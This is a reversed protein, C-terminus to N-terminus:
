LDSTLIYNNEPIYSGIINGIVNTKINIKDLINKISSNEYACLMHYYGDIPNNINTNNNALPGYQLHLLKMPENTSKLILDKVGKLSIFYYDGIISKINDIVICMDYYDLTYIYLKRQKYFIGMFRNIKPSFENEMSLFYWKKYAVYPIFNYMLLKNTLNNGRYYKQIKLNCLYYVDSDCMYRNISIMSGVIENDYVITLKPIGLREFFAMYYKGHSIRFMDNGFPFWQAEKNDYGVLLKNYFIFMENDITKIIYKTIYYRKLLLYVFILIMILIIIKIRDRNM